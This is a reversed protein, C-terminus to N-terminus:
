LAKKRSSMQRHMVLFWWWMQHEIPVIASMMASGEVQTLRLSPVGDERCPSPCQTLPALIQQAKTFGQETQAEFPCETEQSATNAKSPRGSWADHAM